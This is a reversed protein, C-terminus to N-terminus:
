RVWLSKKVLYMGLFDKDFFKALAGQKIGDYIAIDKSRLFLSVDAEDAPYLGRQYDVSLNRIRNELELQYDQSELEEKDNWKAQSNKQM